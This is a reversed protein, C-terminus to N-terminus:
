STAGYAALNLSMAPLVYRTEGYISYLNAATVGPDASFRWSGNDLSSRAVGTGVYPSPNLAEFAIYRATPLTHSPSLGTKLDAARDRYDLTDVLSVNGESFDDITIAYLSGSIVTVITFFSCILAGPPLM